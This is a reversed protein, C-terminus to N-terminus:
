RPIVQLLRAPHAQAKGVQKRLETIGDNSQDACLVMFGQESRLCLMCRLGQALGRCFLEDQGVDELDARM